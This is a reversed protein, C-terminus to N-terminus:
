SFLDTIKQTIYDVLGTVKEYKMRTPGIIGL